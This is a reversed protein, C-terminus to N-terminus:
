VEYGHPPKGGRYFPAYIRNMRAELRHASILLCAHAEFAEYRGHQKAEEENQPAEGGGVGLHSKRVFHGRNCGLARLLVLRITGRLRSLMVMTILAVRGGFIRVVSAAHLRAPRCCQRRGVRLEFQKSPLGRASLDDGIVQITFARNRRQAARWSGRGSAGGAYTVRPQSKRREEGPPVLRLRRVGGLWLTRM